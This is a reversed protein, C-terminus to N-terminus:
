KNKGKKGLLGSIAKVANEATSSNSVLLDIQPAIMPAKKKVYDLVMKVVTQSMEPSLGTKKSIMKVLEDM